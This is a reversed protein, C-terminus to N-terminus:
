YSLNWHRCTILYLFFQSEENSSSFIGISFLEFRDVLAFQRQQGFEFLRDQVAGDAAFQRPVDGPCLPLNLFYGPLRLPAALPQAWSLLRLM